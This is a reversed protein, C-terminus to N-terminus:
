AVAELGNCPTTRYAIPPSCSLKSQSTSFAQM